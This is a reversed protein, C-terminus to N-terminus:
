LHLSELYEERMVPLEALELEALLEGILAVKREADRSSWTRSKVELFTGALEPQTIYDLNLAL